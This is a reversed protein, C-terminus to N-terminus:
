IAAFLEPHALKKEKIQKVLRNFKPSLILPDFKYELYQTFENFFRNYFEILSPVLSRSTKFM